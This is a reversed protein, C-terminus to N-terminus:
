FIPVDPLSTPSTSFFWLASDLPPLVNLSSVRFGFSLAFFQFLLDVQAQLSTRVAKRSLRGYGCEEIYKTVHGQTRNQGAFSSKGCLSVRPNFYGFWCQGKGGVNGELGSGIGEIEKIGKNNPWFYRQPSDDSKRIFYYLLLTVMAEIHFFSSFWRFISSSNASDLLEESSLENLSEILRIEDVM